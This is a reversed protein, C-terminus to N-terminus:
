DSTGAASVKTGPPNERMEDTLESVGGDLSGYERIAELIKEGIGPVELMDDYSKFGGSSERAQLIEEAKGPGIGPIYQLTEADATNLNVKDALASNSLLALAIAMLVWTLYGFSKNWTHAYNEKYM